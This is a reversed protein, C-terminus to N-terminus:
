GTGGVPLSDFSTGFGLSWRIWECLGLFLLIAFTAIIDQGVFSFRERIQGMLSPIYRWFDSASVVVIAGLVGFQAFAIPLGILLWVFKLGNSAASYLPKGLGLLMSENLSSIMSFWAGLCLLPLMWGAAQYRQDYMIKIAVDAVTVLAAIGLAGILLFVLRKSALVARLEDRPMAHSGAILPFVLYSGLRTVLVSIMDSLSRAIGYVGVMGLVAVKGYYLRDFNMSLFYIISSLFIWKGFSFIKRAHESAIFIKHRVNRLIFYSGASRTATDALSALVLGWITPVFYAFVIYEISSFTAMIVEFFNLRVFRIRKQLLYPAVSGLAGLVFFLGAVPLVISLIPVGYFQAIPDATVVTLLWLLVARILRLTWATNYFEANEASPNHVINQGIGVDSILDVGTRISNVIVMIGFLEPALLRTLAVNTILRLLQTIGFAGVTWTAGKLLFRSSFNM